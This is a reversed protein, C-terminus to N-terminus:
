SGGSRQIEFFGDLRTRAFMERVCDRLGSLVLHSNNDRMRRQLVVLRSPMESSMFEVESCDIVLKSCRVHEVVSTWRALDEARYPDSPTCYELRMVSVPGCSFQEICSLGPMAFDGM